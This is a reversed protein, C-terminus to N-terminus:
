FSRATAGRKRLDVATVAHVLADVQDDHDTGVPFTCMEDEASAFVGIHHVQCNHVLIGSAFFEPDHEVTLDYVPVM